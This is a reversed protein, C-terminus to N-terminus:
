TSGARWRPHAARCLSLKGQGDGATRNRRTRGLSGSRNRRGLCPSRSRGAKRAALWGPPSGVRSEDVIRMERQDALKGDAFKWEHVVEYEGGSAFLRTGSPDFTVGYFAQPITAAVRRAEAAKLDVIVIKTSASARLAAGGGVAAQPHMAMNVPFSGLESNAKRGAPDVMPRASLTKGDPSCARGIPAKKHEPEIGTPVANAVGILAFGDVGICTSISM